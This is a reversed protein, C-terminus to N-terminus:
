SSLLITRVSKLCMYVWLFVEGFSSSEAEWLEWLIAHCGISMGESKLLRVIHEEKLSNFFSTGRCFKRPELVM